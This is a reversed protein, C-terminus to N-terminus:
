FPYSEGNWGIFNTMDKYICLSPSNLTFIKGSHIFLKNLNESIEQLLNQKHVIPIDKYLYGFTIHFPRHINSILDFQEAMKTILEDQNPSISVRLHFTESISVEKLTIQLCFQNEQLYNFLKKFLPIYSVLFAQWDAHGCEAQNFLRITTMHYSPYPLPTYYQKALM